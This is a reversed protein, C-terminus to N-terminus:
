SGLLKSIRKSQREAMLTKIKECYHRYMTFSNAPLFSWASTYGGSFSCQILYGMQCQICAPNIVRVAIKELEKVIVDFAM